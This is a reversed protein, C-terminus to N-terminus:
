IVSRNKFKLHITVVTVGYLLIILFSKFLDVAHGTPIMVISIIKAIILVILVIRLVKSATLSKRITFYMLLLLLILLVSPGLKFYRTHANTIKSYFQVIGVTNNITILAFLSYLAIDLIRNKM